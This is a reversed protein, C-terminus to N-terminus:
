LLAPRLPPLSDTLKCSVLSAAPSYAPPGTQLQLSPPLAATSPPASTPPPLPGANETCGLGWSGPYVSKWSQTGGWGVENRKFPWSSSTELIGELLLKKKEKAEAEGRNEKM